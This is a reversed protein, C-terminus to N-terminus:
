WLTQFSPMTSTAFSFSVSQSGPSPTAAVRGYTEGWRWLAKWYSQAGQLSAANAVCQWAGDVEDAPCEFNVNWGPHGIPYASM